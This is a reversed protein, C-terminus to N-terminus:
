THIYLVVLVLSIETTFWQIEQNASMKKKGLKHLDLATEELSHVFVIQQLNGATVDLLTKM